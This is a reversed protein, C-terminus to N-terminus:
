KQLFYFVAATLFGNNTITNLAFPQTKKPFADILILGTVLLFLKSAWQQTCYRLSTETSVKIDIFLKTNNIPISFAIKENSFALWKVINAFWVPM